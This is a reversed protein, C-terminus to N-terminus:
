SQMEEIAARIATRADSLRRWLSAERIGLIEAAQKGPVEEIVCLVYAERLGPTLQEVAAAVWRRQQELTITENVSPARSSPMAALNANANARRKESRFYQRVQNVAIGFLWTKVASDGRFRPASRYAELFTQQALDDAIDGRALRVVFRYVDAHFRDYLAGLAAQDGEGLASVLARDSLEEATGRIRRFPLLKGESM